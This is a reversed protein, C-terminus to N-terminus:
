MKNIAKINLVDLGNKLVIRVAQVLTLRANKIDEHEAKLVHHKHYFTNFIHALELLYNCVTSPNYNESSDRVIDPYQMLKLVLEKEEQEGLKEFDIDDIEQLDQNELISSIRAHAYQVYPGTSGEFSIAEKPNFHISQSPTIRLLMFKLAGMGIAEARQGLEADSIKPFRKKIEKAALDQVESIIADADVVKGERSKMKGEPLFVLGYSLHHLNEAWKYGLRKLIEFLVKFHYEQEHGVVYVLSDADWEQQREIALALDQTVYISTGDGRQLIKKDLGIDELNVSVASNDEKKFVGKKLGQEVISKGTEYIKSEYYDKDFESELAKYTENFGDYVWKNMKKWLERVEKDASEWKRLAEQAQEMMSDEDFKVYYEGVFHDSKKHEDEPSKNEGLKQYAVLSKMIHIGRDNILQVKKVDAGQSELLNSLSMGLVNNRVHGLHLPKNTNPSSYEIVTRRRALSSNSSTGYKDQKKLIDSLVEKSLAESGVFINLYGAVAETEAILKDKLKDSLKQAIEQPPMKAQKSFKHCAVAFDGFKSDPNVLEIEDVKIKFESKLAKKIKEELKQRIM